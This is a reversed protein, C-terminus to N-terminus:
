DEKTPALLDILTRPSMQGGILLSLYSTLIREDYNARDTFIPILAEFGNQLRETEWSEPYPWLQFIGIRPGGEPIGAIREEDDMTGNPLSSLSVRSVFLSALSNSGGYVLLSRFEFFETLDKKLWEVRTGKFRQLGLLRELHSRQFCVGDLNRLWCQLVAFLGVVRHQRRAGERLDIQKM